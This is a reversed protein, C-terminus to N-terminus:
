FLSSNTCVTGLNEMCKAPLNEIQTTKSVQVITTDIVSIIPPHILSKVLELPLVLPRHLQGKKRVSDDIM